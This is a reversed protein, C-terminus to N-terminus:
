AARSVTLQSVHCVLLLSLAGLAVVSPEGLPQARVHVARKRRRGRRGPRGAPRGTLVDARNEVTALACPILESTTALLGSRLDRFEALVCALRKGPSAQFGGSLESRLEFREFFPEFRDFLAELRRLTRPGPCFAGFPGFRFRLSLNLHASSLTPADRDGPNRAM